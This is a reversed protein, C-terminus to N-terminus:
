KAFGTLYGEPHATGSNPSLYNDSYDLLFGGVKRYPYDNVKIFWHLFSGKSDAQRLGNWIVEEVGDYQYTDGNLFQVYLRQNASDYGVYKINSSDVKWMVVSPVPLQYIDLKKKKPINPVIRYPMVETVQDFFTRDGQKIVLWTSMPINEYRYVMGSDDVYLVEGDSDYYLTPAKAFCLRKNSFTLVKM